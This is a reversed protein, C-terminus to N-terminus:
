YRRWKRPFLTSGYQLSWGLLATLARLYAKRQRCFSRLLWLNNRSRTPSPTGGASHLQPHTNFFKVLLSISTLPRSKRPEVKLATDWFSGLAFDIPLDATVSFAADARGCILPGVIFILAAKELLLLAFITTQRGHRRHAGVV